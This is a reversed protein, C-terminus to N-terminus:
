WGQVCICSFLTDLVKSEVRKVTWQIGQEDTIRDEPFPKTFNPYAGDDLVSFTITNDAGLINARQLEETTAPRRRANVNIAVAYGDATPGTDSNGGQSVKNQLQMVYTNVLVPYLSKPLSADFLGSM